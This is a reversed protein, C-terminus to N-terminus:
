RARTLEVGDVVMKWAGGADYPPRSVKFVTNFPGLGARFDNGDFRQLPANLSTRTSGQERRYVVRGEPAISLYMGQARWEGVYDAKEAPVPKGCAALPLSAALALALARANM